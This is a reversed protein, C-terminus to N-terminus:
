IKIFVLKRNLFVKSHHGFSLFLIGALSEVSTSARKMINSNSIRM